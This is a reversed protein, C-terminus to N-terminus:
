LVEFLVSMHCSRLTHEEDGHEVDQQQAHVASPANIQM